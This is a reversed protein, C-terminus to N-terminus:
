QEVARSISSIHPLCPLDKVGFSHDVAGVYAKTGVRCRRGSRVSSRWKSYMRLRRANSLDGYMRGGAGFMRHFRRRHLVSFLGHIRPHITKSPATHKKYSSIKTRGFVEQTALPKKPYVLVAYLEPLDQTNQLKEGIGSIFAAHQNIFIPVDAGLKIGITGLKEKSFGAQWLENLIMLTAAADGSGGGLGAGVPINKILKIAINDPRNCEEQMVRFARTVINRENKEVLNAFEGSIDLSFLPAPTINIEDCIDTFVILSDLTHYGDPRKGTIHLYLNLKAPVLM